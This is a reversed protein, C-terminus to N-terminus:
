KHEKATTTATTSNEQHTTSEIFSEFEKEINEVKELAEEAQQAHNDIDEAVKEVFEAADRLKGKPLHNVAEEAVKDVKEAVDEIVDVVREAEDITTEVKEKLQLLPGWKGRTFSALITFITGLIWIKWHGPSPDVPDGPTISSYVAMNMKRTADKQFRLSLNKEPVSFRNRKVKSNFRLHHISHNVINSAPYRSFTGVALSAIMQTFITNAM